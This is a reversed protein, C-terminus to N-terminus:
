VEAGLTVIDHKNKTFNQTKNCFNNLKMMSQMDFSQNKYDEWKVSKFIARHNCWRALDKFKKEIEYSLSNPDRYPMAFPVIKYKWPIMLRNYCQEVSEKFGILCFTMINHPKHYKLVIKIKKEYIPILESSDLSFRLPKIRIQSLKKATYDDILRIDLAQNFDVEIDHEKIFDVNEEWKPSALFNNDLLVLRKHSTDWFESIPAYDRIQGENKRVICWPCNRICGRSTFGMSYDINYLEYDPKIHEIHPLLKEDNIACGGMKVKTFNEWFKKIQLAKNKNYSFVCSIYVLDPSCGSNLFISDGRKKHYASIKMLALNPGKNDVDILLIKM